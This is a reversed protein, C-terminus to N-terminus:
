YSSANLVRMLPADKVVEMKQEAVIRQSIFNYTLGLDM